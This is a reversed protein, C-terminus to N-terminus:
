RARELEVQREAAHMWAHLLVDGGAKNTGTITALCLHYIGAILKLEAGHDRVLADIIKRPSEGSDLSSRIALVYQGLMM